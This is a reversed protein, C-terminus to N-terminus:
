VPPSAGAAPSTCLAPPTSEMNAYFGRPEGPSKNPRSHARTGRSWGKSSGFFHYGIEFWIGVVLAGGFNDFGKNQTLPNRTDVFLGPAHQNHEITFQM